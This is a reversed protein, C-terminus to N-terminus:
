VMLVSQYGGYVHDIEEKTNIDYIWNQSLGVSSNDSFLVRYKYTYHGSPLNLVVEWNGKKTKILDIQNDNWGNFSGSLKVAVIEKDKFAEIINKYFSYVNKMTAIAQRDTYREPSFRFRVARVIEKGKSDRWGMRHWPCFDITHALTSIIRHSIISIPRADIPSFYNKHSSGLILVGIKEKGYILCKGLGSKINLCECDEIEGFGNRMVIVDDLHVNKVIKDSINKDVRKGYVIDPQDYHFCYAPFYRNSSIILNDELKKGYKNSQAYLALKGEANPRFVAAWSQKKKFNYRFEQASLAANLLEVIKEKCNNEFESEKCNCTFNFKSVIEGTINNLYYILNDYYQIFIRQSLFICLMVFFLVSFLMTYVLEEKGLIFVQFIHFVISAVLSPLFGFVFIKKLYENWTM